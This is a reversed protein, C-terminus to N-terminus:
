KRTALIFDTDANVCRWRHLCSEHPPFLLAASQLKENRELSSYTSYTQEEPQQSLTARSATQTSSATPPKPEPLPETCPPCRSGARCLRRRVCLQCCHRHKPPKGAFPDSLQLEVELKGEVKASEIPTQLQQSSQISHKSQTNIHLQYCHALHM